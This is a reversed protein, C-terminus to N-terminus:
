KDARSSEAEGAVEAMGTYQTQEDSVEAEGAEQKRM